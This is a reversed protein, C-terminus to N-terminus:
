ARGPTFKPNFVNKSNALDAAFGSFTKTDSGEPVTVQLVINLAQQVQKAVEAGIDAARLPKDGAVPATIPNGTVRALPASASSVSVGTPSQSEKKIQAIRDNVAKDGFASGLQEALDAVGFAGAQFLKDDQQKKAKAAAKDEEDSKKKLLKLQRDTEVEIASTTEAKALRIKQEAAQNAAAILEQNKTEAAVKNRDKEIEQITLQEKLRLQAEIQAVTNKNKDEGQRKLNEIEIDAQKKQAEISATDLANIKNNEATQDAERAAKKADAEAKKQEKVRDAAAKKAESTRKAEEKKQEATREADISGQLRSIELEINRRESVSLKLASMVSRLQEIEQAKTIQKQNAAQKIQALEDALVRKREAEAAKDDAAKQRKEEAALRKKEAADAKDLKAQEKKSVDDPPTSKKASEQTALETKARQAQEIQAKLRAELELNGAARAAEAQDNLGGLIGAVDKSTKGMRALEDANKGVLDKNASLTRAREEEVKILLEMSERQQQIALTLAGLGIAASGVVLLAIGLTSAFIALAGEAAVTASALASQALAVAQANSALIALQAAAGLAGLGISAVRATVETAAGIFGKLEPSASQLVGVVQRLAPSFKDQLEISGAGIERKLLEFEGSLRQTDDAAREAAGKFSGTDAFALLARRAADAREATDTLVQGAEVKAGLEEMADATAGLEKMLAKVSKPDTNRDLESFKAALASIGQGTVASINELRTLNEQVPEIGGKSLRQLALLAESDDFGLVIQQQALKALEAGAEGFAGAARDALADAADGARNLEAALEGAVDAVKGLVQSGKELANQFGLQNDTAQATTGVDAIAGGVGSYDAKMQATVQATKAEARDLNAIVQNTGATQDFVDALYAIRVEGVDAM